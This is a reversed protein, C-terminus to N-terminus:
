QTQKQNPIFLLATSPLPLTKIFRDMNKLNRPNKVFANGYGNVKSLKTIFDMYVNNDRFLSEPDILDFYNDGYKQRMYYDMENSTARVEEWNNDFERRALDKYKAKIKRPIFEDTKHSIGEHIQTSIEDYNEPAKEKSYIRIYTENNDYDYLGDWNYSDQISKSKDTYNHIKINGKDDVYELPYIKNINKDFINNPLDVNFTKFKQRVVDGYNQAQRDLESSVVMGRYSLNSDDAFFKANSGLLDEAEQLSEKTPTLMIREGTKQSVAEMEPASLLRNISSPTTKAAVQKSAGKAVGKAALGAIGAVASDFLFNGWFNGFGEGSAVNEWYSKDNNRTAAGVYTSPSVMTLMADVAKGAEQLNKQKQDEYILYDSVMHDYKKQSETRNDQRFEPTAERIRLAEAMYDYPIVPMRQLPMEVRTNDSQQTNEEMTKKQNLM